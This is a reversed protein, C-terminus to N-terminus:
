LQQRRGWIICADKSISADCSNGGSGVTASMRASESTVVTAATGFQKCVDWSVRVDWSNGGDGFPAPMRALAPTVVTEATGLLQLSKQQSGHCWLQQRRGWSNSVDRGVSADCSNGGDGVTASMGASESTQQRRGWSNSVDRSVRADCGTAGDGVINCDDRGVRADVTAATGLEKCVDRSVRVDSRYWHKPKFSVVHM